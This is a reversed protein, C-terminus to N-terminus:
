NWLTVHVSPKFHGVNVGSGRLMAQTARPTSVFRKLEAVATGAAQDPMTLASWVGDEHTSGFVGVYRAGQAALAPVLLLSRLRGSGLSNWAARVAPTLEALNRVLVPTFAKAFNRALWTLWKGPKATGASVPSVGQEAQYVWEPTGGAAIRVLCFVDFHAGELLPQLM